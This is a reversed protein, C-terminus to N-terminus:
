ISARSYRVTKTSTFWTTFRRKLREFFLKTGNYILSTIEKGNFVIAELVTDNFVVPITTKVVLEIMAYGDTGDVNQNSTTSSTYIQDKYTLVEPVGIYGSGGAGSGSAGNGAFGGWYGGGGGGTVMPSDAANGTWLESWWASQGAGKAYGSNQTGPQANTGNGGFHGGKAGSVGGGAGGSTYYDGLVGSASDGGSGGAVILIDEDAINALTGSAMAIHTAGGGSGSPNRWSTNGSDPVIGAGGGNYAPKGEYGGAQGCCIYIVDGRKFEKYGITRGGYATTELTGHAGNAGVATLKYIGSVPITFSVVDGTYAFARMVDRMVGVMNTYAAKWVSDRLECRYLIGYEVEKVTIVLTNTENGVGSSANWSMGGDTSYYWKYYTADEAEVTFTAKEGVQAVVDVPQKTIVVKSIIEIGVVDTTAQGGSADKLLCRYMQTAHWSGAPNITLTATNAGSVGDYGAISGWSEGNGSIQWTYSNVGTAEVTFTAATNNRIKVSEPQKTIYVAM